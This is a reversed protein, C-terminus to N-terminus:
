AWVQNRGAQKAKYLAADARRLMENPDFGTTAVSVGASITVFGTETGPNPYNLAWIARRLGDILAMGESFAAKPLFLAFEEGGYRAFLHPTGRLGDRLTAGVLQLCQDGKMHGLQDNLNKFRDIDILCMLCPLVATPQKAYGDIRERFYRRNPIETLQDTYAIDSLKVNQGTIKRSRLEDRLQIIFNRSQYLHSRRGANVLACMAGSLYVILQLKEFISMLPAILLCVSAATMTVGALMATHLFNMQLLMLATYIVALSMSFYILFLAASQSALGCITATILTLLCLGTILAARQGATVAFESVRALFIFSLTLTIRMRLTLLIDSGTLDGSDFISSVINIGAIWWCWNYIMRQSARINLTEFQAMIDDPIKLRSLPTEALSELMSLRQAGPEGAEVQPLIATLSVRPKLFDFLM